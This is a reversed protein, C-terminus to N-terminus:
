RVQSFFAATVPVATILLGKQHLLKHVKYEIEVELLHLHIYQLNDIEQYLQESLLLLM